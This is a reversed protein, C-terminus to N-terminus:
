RQKATNIRGEPCMIKEPVLPDRQALMLKYQIINCTQCIFKELVEYKFSSKLIKSAITVIEGENYLAAGNAGELLRSCHICKEHM